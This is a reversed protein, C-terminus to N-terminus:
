GRLMEGGGWDVHVRVQSVAAVGLQRGQFQAGNGNM